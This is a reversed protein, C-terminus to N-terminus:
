RVFPQKSVSALDQPSDSIKGCFHQSRICYLGLLESIDGMISLWDGMDKRLVGLGRRTSQEARKWHGFLTTSIALVYMAGCQWSTDLSKYSQLIKVHQLLQESLELCVALNEESFEVSSTMSLSPHRLLLRFELSSAVLWQSHVRGEEDMDPSGVKVENPWQERWDRFRKELRQVNEVHHQSSRKIGYISGYMDILTPLIKFGEIAVLFDCKGTKSADLGQESLLDDDMAQPLEIDLDEERLPMPRGLKGCTLVHMLAISWFTRKRM